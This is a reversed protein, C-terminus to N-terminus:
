YEDYSKEKKRQRLKEKIILCIPCITLVKKIKKITKQTAGAGESL